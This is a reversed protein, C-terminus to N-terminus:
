LEQPFRFVLTLMAQNRDATEDGTRSEDFEQSYKYSLQLSHNETFYYALLPRISFFRTDQDDTDRERRTFYLNGDLGFRLRETLKYNFRASIHDIERLRDNADYNIDRRYGLRFSSILGEKEYDVEAVFGSNDIKDQGSRWEETYRGGALVTLRGIESSQHSWGLRLMYNDTEVTDSDRFRYAPRISLSDRGENFSRRYFAGVTHFDRDERGEEDYDTHSYDYSAGFSSLETLNFQMGGGANYRDRDESDFVRGTEELESDLLTDRIYRFDANVIFRETLRTDGNLRFRYKTTDLDTEELYNLFTVDGVASLRTLESQYGLTVSPQVISAYDDDEDEDEAVFFVNDDYQGSLSLTPLLTWTQATSCLPPLLIISCLVLCFYVSARLIM